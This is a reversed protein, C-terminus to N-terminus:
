RVAQVSIPLKYLMEASWQKGHLVQGELREKLFENVEANPSTISRIEIVKESNLRFVVTVKFEEEIVLDSNKLMKEIEYSIASRKPEGETSNAAYISSSFTVCLALLFFKFHRM